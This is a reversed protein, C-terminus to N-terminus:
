LTYRLIVIGDGGKGSYRGCYSGGGGGGTGDQGAQATVPGPNGGNGGSTGDGTNYNTDGGGGGGGAYNTTSGTTWMAIDISGAGNGGSTNGTTNAGQGVAGGGGAGQLSSMQAHGGPYGQAGPAVSNGRNNPYGAGAGAGGGSGGPRGYEKAHWAAGGGGSGTATISPDVPGPTWNVQGGPGANISTPSGDAGQQDCSAGGAGGGGVVVPWYGAAPFKVTPQSPGPFNASTTIIGGGGGGGGRGDGGGGGGALIIFDVGALGTWTQGGGIKRGAIPSYSIEANVTFQGSSTFKHSRYSIPGDTHDNISGGTHTGGVSNFQKSIQQTRNLGFGIRNFAM